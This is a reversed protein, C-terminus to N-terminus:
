AIEAQVGLDALRRLWDQVEEDAPRRARPPIPSPMAFRDYKSEALPHYPLVHVKQLNPLDRVTRAIREFHADSVNLGPVLPCRLWIAAGADHLRRLNALIPKLPVGTLEQHTADDAAKLDFLFLDTTALLRDLREAPAFGCTEVATHLGCAKAEALLAATFDIQMTPEGGSLTMGGGSTEYFPEDKRVEALVEAVTVDRGVRELAGAYCQETCAGCVTCRDRDLVPAGGAGARHAAHPCAEMCFGCGICRSPDFSLQKDASIGEPNHCWLCRLPCGKLFVTTRIGPGDNISFRQVDFIRGSVQSPKPDTM